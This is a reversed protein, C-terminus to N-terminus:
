RAKSTAMVVWSRFVQHGPTEGSQLTATTVLVVIIYHRCDSFAVEASHLVLKDEESGTLVFVLNKVTYFM